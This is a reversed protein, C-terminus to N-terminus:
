PAEVFARLRELAAAPPTGFCGLVRSADIYAVGDGGDILTRYSSWPWDGPVDCLGAQVPNRAVYRFTTMLDGDSGIRRSGYRDAFVHGRLRHRANTKQAYRGNLQHMVLPLSEDEFDVLLHVHTTMLCFSICSWRPRQAVVVLERLFTARDVDDRFLPATWVSHATVHYIGAVADRPLRPM